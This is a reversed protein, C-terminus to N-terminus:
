WDNGVLIELGTKTGITYKNYGLITMNKNYTDGDLSQLINNEWSFEGCYGIIDSYTQSEIITTDHVHVSNFNQNQFLVDFSQPNDLILDFHQYRKSNVLIEKLKKM